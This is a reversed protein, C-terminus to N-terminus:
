ALSREVADHTIFAEKITKAHRMAAIPGDTDYTTMVARIANRRLHDALGVPLKRLVAAKSPAATRAIPNYESM